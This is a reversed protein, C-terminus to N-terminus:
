VIVTVRLRALSPLQYEAGDPGATFQGGTSAGSGAVVGTKSAAAQASCPSLVCLACLSVSAAFLARARSAVPRRSVTM